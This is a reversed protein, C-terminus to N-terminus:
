GLVEASRGLVEEELNKRCLFRQERERESETKIYTHKGV